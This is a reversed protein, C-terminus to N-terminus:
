RIQAIVYHEVVKKKNKGYLKYGGDLDMAYDMCANYCAKFVIQNLSNDLSGTYTVKGAEVQDLLEQMTRVLMKDTKYYLHFKVMNIITERNAKLDATTLVNNM